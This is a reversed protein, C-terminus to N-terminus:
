RDRQLYTLLPYYSNLGVVDLDRWFTINEFEQGWNAAYTLRGTYVRRLRAILERWRDPHKLTAHVLETGICLAAVHQSEAMRAYHTIWREYTTFFHDWEAETVFDVAGPWAGGVWIQPKM